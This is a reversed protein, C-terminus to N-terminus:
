LIIIVGILFGIILGLIGKIIGIDNWSPKIIDSYSVVFITGVAIGLSLSLVFPLIMGFIYGIFTGIGTPIAVILASKMISFLSFDALALPIGVAIGEPMTHLVMTIALNQAIEQSLYLSSGLAIGTPLNHISVAIALLIGSRLYIDKRPESTIIIVRDFFHEMQNAFIFGLVLGVVTFFVGGIKLSEPVIELFLLSYTIGIAMNVLVPIKNNGINRIFYAIFGGIGMGTGGIALGYLGSQLSNSIL